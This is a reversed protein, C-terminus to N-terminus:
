VDQHCHTHKGAFASDTLNVREGTLFCNLFVAMLEKGVLLFVKLFWSGQLLTYRRTNLAGMYIRIPKHSSM